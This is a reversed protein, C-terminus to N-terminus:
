GVQVIKDNRIDYWGHRRQLEDQADYYTIDYYRSFEPAEPLRSWEDKVIAFAAEENIGEANVAGCFPCSKVYSGSEAETDDEFVAVIFNVDYERGCCGCTVSKQIMKASKIQKM